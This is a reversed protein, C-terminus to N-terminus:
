SPHVHEMPNPFLQEEELEVGDLGPGEVSPPAPDEPDVPDVDGEPGGTGFL